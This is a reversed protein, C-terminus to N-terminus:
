LFNQRLAGDRVFALIEDVKSAEAHRNENGDQKNQMRILSIQEWRNDSDREQEADHHNNGDTARVHGRHNREQIGVRSEGRRRHSKHQVVLQEDNSASQIAGGTENKGHVHGFGHVTRERVNQESCEALLLGGGRARL